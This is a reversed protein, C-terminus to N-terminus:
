LIYKFFFLINLFFFFAISIFQRHILDIFLINYFDDGTNRNHLFMPLKTKEALNFQVEFYKKQTEVSCFHLRDYDLGCEGIAVVSPNSTLKLLEDFYAQPGHEEFEGCRTPHCGVTSYLFQVQETEVVV